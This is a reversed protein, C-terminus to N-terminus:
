DDSQLGKHVHQPARWRDCKFKVWINYHDICTLVDIWEFNLTQIYVASVMGTNSTYYFKIATLLKIFHKTM